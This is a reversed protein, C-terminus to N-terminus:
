LYETFYDILSLAVTIILCIGATGIIGTWILPLDCNILCKLGWFVGWLAMLVCFVVGGWLLGVKISEWM